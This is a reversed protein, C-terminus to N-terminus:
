KIRVFNHTSSITSSEVFLDRCLDSSQTEVPRIFITPQYQVNQDDQQLRSLIQRVAHFIAFTLFLGAGCLPGHYPTRAPRRQGRHARGARGITRDDAIKGHDLIYGLSVGVIDLRVNQSRDNVTDKDFEYYEALLLIVNAEYARGRQM